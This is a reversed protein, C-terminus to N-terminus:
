NVLKIVEEYVKKDEESFLIFVVRNISYTYEDLFNYTTELAIKAAEEIPYGYLGCSIAPFAISKLEFAAAYRLSSIYCQELLHKDEIIGKYVPGVTHIVYRAFLKHGYTIQAHGTQCGGIKRCEDLMGPGAARHIAGDVGGGGLLSTNAANVIVDVQLETIDGQRIEIIDLIKKKMREGESNEFPDYVKLWKYYIDGLVSKPEIREIGEGFTGNFCRPCMCYVGIRILRKPVVNCVLCKINYQETCKIM